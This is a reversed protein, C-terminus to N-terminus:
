FEDDSKKRISLFSKSSLVFPIQAVRRFRQETAKKSYQLGYKGTVLLDDGSGTIVAGACSGTPVGGSSSSCITAGDPCVFQGYTAHRGTTGGVCWGCSNVYASGGIVGACDTPPTPGISATVSGTLSTCNSHDVIELNIVYSGTVDPVFSFQELLNPSSGQAAINSGTQLFGYITNRECESLARNWVAFEDISGSFRPAAIWGATGKGITLNSADSTNQVQTKTGLLQNNQYLYATLNSSDYIAFYHNWGVLSGATVILDSPGAWNSLRLNNPTNQTLTWDQNTANTGMSFIIGYDQWVSASAWFSITRSNGGDIGLTSPKPGTISGSVGDLLYAHTGVYKSTVLTSGSSVAGTNGQGSSDPTSLSSATLFGSATFNYPVTPNTPSTYFDVGSGQSGSNLTYFCETPFAGPTYLVEVSDGDAATFDFWEPGSGAALTINTLAPAGNVNVTIFNNGHWGDGFTDRLGISGVQTTTTNQTDFHWLLTNGSVPYTSGSNPLNERDNAISSGTPVSAWSWQYATSGSPLGQPTADFSATLAVSGTIDPVNFIGKGHVVSGFLSDLSVTAPGDHVVSAFLSDVNITPPGDHVLSAFLNSLTASGSIPQFNAVQNNYISLVNADTLVSGSFAAFEQIAGTFYDWQYNPGGIRMNNANSTNRGSGFYWIGVPAGNFYFTAAYSSSDYTIGYHNWGLPSSPINWYADAGWTNLSIRNTTKTVLSFDQGSSNLGMTFLIKDNLWASSSAWFVMSRSNNGDMGMAGPTRNTDIYANTGNFYSASSFVTGPPVYSGSHLKVPSSINTVNSGTGTYGNGSDDYASNGTAVDNMHYLFANSSMNIWESDRKSGPLAFQPELLRELTQKATNTDYITNVESATLARNWFAIEALAEAFYRGGAANNGIAIWNDTLPAPATATGVSAGNIYFEVNGTGDSTVVLHNWSTSGVFGSPNYGTGYFVGGQRVGINNGAANIRIPTDNGGGADAIATRFNPLLQRFWLSITYVGSSNPIEVALTATATSSGYEWSRSIPGLFDPTVNNFSADFRDWKDYPSGCPYYAVLGDAFTAM